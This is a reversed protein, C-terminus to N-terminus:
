RHTRCSQNWISRRLERALLFSSTGCACFMTLWFAPVGPCLFRVAFYVPMWAVCTSLLQIRCVAATLGLGRIAGQLVLTTFEPGAKLAAAVALFRTVAHFADADFAPDSPLFVDLMPGHFLALAATYALVIGGTLVTAARLIKRVADFDERGSARGILIEIAASVGQSCGHPIGNIAFVATSAAVAPAPCEALFATFLFFGGIETVIRFGNPIGLRLIELTERASLSPKLSVPTRRFEPDRMIAAALVACPVVHALTQAVGAGVVGGPLGAFGRVFFPCIAINVAFGLVTTAGVFRTRGQGTFFGGLVQALVTFAANPMLIDFYRIEAALVDPTTDFAGLVARALPLGLALLPLAFLTLWVSQVFATLAGKVDGAGHRRAFITGAYGLTANFFAMYTVALMSGPLSAHLATESHRALFFQTAFTNAAFALQAFVLPASVRATLSLARTM